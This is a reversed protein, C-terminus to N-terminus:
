MQLDCMLMSVRGVAGCRQSKGADELRSLLVRVLCVDDAAADGHSLVYAAEM